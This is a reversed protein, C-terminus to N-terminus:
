DNLLSLSQLNVKAGNLILYRVTEVNGCQAAWLLPTGCKGNQNINAGLQLFYNVIEVGTKTGCHLM